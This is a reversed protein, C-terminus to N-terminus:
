WGRMRPWHQGALRADGILEYRDFQAATACAHNPLIRLREGIRFRDALLPTGDRRAIIGHEQNVARVIVEDLVRGNMDCVLGYGQDVAQAATGRDASLATWGADVLYEGTAKRVGIVETLVSIAIDDLACVGLGAMVLDMFVHTGARVETVGDLNRAFAATPTSGVSVVACDIGASRLHGAATVAARREIEAAEALADAGPCSYSGGMHTLVGAVTVGGRQLQRALEVLRPDDPKLGARKGDADVELLVEFRAPSTGAADILARAADAHDLVLKLRAGHGILEAVRALKGPAIGVAYVQDTFGHDLFYEAEALTSVTIGPSLPGLMRRAVEASKATKVHPRLAVGLTSIRSEFRALNRTMRDLDLVLAPTQVIHDLRDPPNPPM